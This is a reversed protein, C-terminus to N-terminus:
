IPKKVVQINEEPLIMLRGTDTKGTFLIHSM